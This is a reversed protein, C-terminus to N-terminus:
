REEKKEVINDRFFLLFLILIIFTCITTLGWVKEWHVVSAGNVTETFMEIIEGNIFNGVLLGLGFTVLFIFGQAQANLEEPVKKHIYVQGGVFFFGYIIGHILIAVFYFALM